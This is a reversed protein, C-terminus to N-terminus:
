PGSVTRAAHSGRARWAVVYGAALLAAGPWFMLAMGLTGPSGSLHAQHASMGDSVAPAPGMALMGAITLAGGAAVLGLALRPARRLTWLLAAVSAALLPLGWAALFDDLPTPLPRAGAVGVAVALAALGMTAMTVCSMCYLGLGGRALWRERGPGM